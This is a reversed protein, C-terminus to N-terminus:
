TTGVRGLIDPYFPDFPNRMHVNLNFLAIDPIMYYLSPVTPKEQEAM